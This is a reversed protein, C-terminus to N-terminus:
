LGEDHHGVRDLEIAGDRTRWYKLRRSGPTGGELDVRYAVAGDSRVEQKIKGWPKAIGMEFARGTVAFVCKELIKRRQMAGTKTMHLVTAVFNPGFLLEPLRYREREVEGITTLYYYEIEYRIQSSEDSFFHPVERQAARLQKQLNEIHNRLRFTEETLEAVQERAGALSSVVEDVHQEIEPRSPEPTEPELHLWGPGGPIVSFSDGADGSTFDLDIYDGDSIAFVSVVQGPRALSSAVQGQRVPLSLPLGPHLLVIVADDTFAEVQVLTMRGEGVWNVARARVDDPPRIPTFTRLVHSGSMTGRFQMRKKFVRRGDIGAWLSAPSFTANAGTSRDRVSIIQPSVDTVEVTVIDGERPTIQATRTTSTFHQWNAAEVVKRTTGPRDWNMPAITSIAPSSPNGQWQSYLGYVRVYGWFVTYNRGVLETFRKSADQSLVYISIESAIESELYVVDVFPTRQERGMSVVVIPPRDDRQVYHHFEESDGESEVLWVRKTNPYVKMM